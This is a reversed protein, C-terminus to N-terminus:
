NQGRSPPNNVNCKGKPGPPHIQQQGGAAAPRHSALLEAPVEKLKRIRGAFAESTITGAPVGPATPTCIHCCCSVTCVLDLLYLLAAPRCIFSGAATRFGYLLTALCRHGHVFSSCPRNRSAISLDAAVQLFLAHWAIFGGM